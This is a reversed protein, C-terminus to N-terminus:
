LKQETGALEYLHDELLDLRDSLKKIHNYSDNLIQKYDQDLDKIMELRKLISLKEEHIM